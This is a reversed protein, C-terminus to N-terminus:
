IDPFAVASRFVQLVQLFSFSLSAALYFLANRCAEDLRGAM